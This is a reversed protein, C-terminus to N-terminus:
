KFKAWEVSQGIESRTFRGVLIGVNVLARTCARVALRLLFESQAREVAAFEVRHDMTANASVKASFADLRESSKRKISEGIISDISTSTHKEREKQVIVRANRKDKHSGRPSKDLRNASKSGSACTVFVCSVDGNDGSSFSTVLCFANQIQPSDNITPLLYDESWGNDVLAIM